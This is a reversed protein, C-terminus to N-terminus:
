GICAFVHRITVYTDTVTISALTSDERMDRLRREVADRATVLFFTDIDDVVITYM